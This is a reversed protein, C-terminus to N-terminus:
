DLKEITVDIIEPMVYAGLFAARLERARQRAVRERKNRKYKSIYPEEKRLVNQFDSSLLATSVARSIPEVIPMVMDPLNTANISGNIEVLASESEIGKDSATTTTITYTISGAKDM